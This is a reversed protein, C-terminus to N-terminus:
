IKKNKIPNVIIEKTINKEKERLVNFKIKYKTIAPKIIAISM